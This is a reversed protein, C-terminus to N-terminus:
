LATREILQYVELAARARKIDVELVAAARTHGQLDGELTAVRREWYKLASAVSRRKRWAKLRAIM